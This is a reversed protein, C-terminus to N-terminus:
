DETAGIRAERQSEELYTRLEDAEQSCGVSAPHASGLKDTLGSVAQDYLRLADDYLDRATALTALKWVSKLTDPHSEGFAKRFGQFAERYLAEAENFRGQDKLAQGLNMMGTLTYPHDPGLETTYGKLAERFLEEAEAFKQQDQLVVGLNNVSTLASPHAAGLEQRGEHVQRFLQEASELDGQDQLVSGLNSLASLTDQHNSGLRTVYGDVARQLHKAATEYKGQDQLVLGLYGITTLFNPHTESLGKQRRDVVQRLLAEAAQYEGLQRLVLALNRSCSLTDPHYKGLETTYTQSAADLLKKSARYKGQKELALALYSMSELTDEHKRGLLNRRGDYAQRFLGEAESFKGQRELALALPGLAALFAAKNTESQEQLHEYAFIRLQLEPKCQGTRGLFNALQIVMEVVDAKVLIGTECQRGLISFCAMIHPVLRLSMSPNEELGSSIGLLHTCAAICVRAQMSAELREYSWDQVLKHMTYAQREDQWRLFSYSSLIEFATEIETKSFSGLPAELIGLPAGTPQKHYKNEGQGFIRQLTAKLSKIDHTVTKLDTYGQKPPDPDTNSRLFNGDLILVDQFIDNPSLFALFALLDTARPHQVAIADHTTEWTVITSKDYFDVIRKPKRSLVAVRQKYEVLYDQILISPSADVYAAALNIALAHYGLEKVIRDVEGRYTSTNTTSRSRGLFLERAEIPDLEAVQIAEINTMDKASQSRTTIVVDTSATDPIFRHLDIYGRLEPADINDANDFVFLWRGPLRRRLNNVELIRMEISITESRDGANSRSLYTHCRVYDKELSEPSVSDLWLITTYHKRYTTIYNLVLQTKGAGGLGCVVLTNTAGQEINEYLREKM